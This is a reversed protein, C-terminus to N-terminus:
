RGKTHLSTTSDVPITCQYKVRYKWGYSQPSVPWWYKALRSLENSYRLSILQWFGIDRGPQLSRDTTSVKCNPLPNERLVVAPQETSLTLAPIYRAGPNMQPESNKFRSVHLFRAVLKRFRGSAAVCIMACIQIRPSSHEPLLRRWTTCLYPKEHCIDQKPFRPFRQVHAIM